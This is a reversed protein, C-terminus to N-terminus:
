IMVKLSVGMNKTHIKNFRDIPNTEIGGPSIKLHNLGSEMLVQRNSNFADWVDSSLTDIQRKNRTHISILSNMETYTKGIGHTIVESDSQFPEITIIPFGPHEDTKGEQVMPYDAFIWQSGGRTAPDVVNGSILKYVTNWTNTFLNSGVATSM